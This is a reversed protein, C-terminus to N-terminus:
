DNKRLGNRISESIMLTKEVLLILPNGPLGLVMEKLWNDMSAIFEEALEKSSIIKVEVTRRISM